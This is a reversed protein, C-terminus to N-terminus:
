LYIRKKYSSYIIEAYILKEYFSKKELNLYFSLEKNLAFKKQSLYNYDLQYALVVEPTSVLSYDSLLKIVLDLDEYVTIDTRFFGVKEFCKKRILMSGTRPFIKKEWLFRLPNKVISEELYACYINEKKGSIIKFNAVFFSIEQYKNTLNEFVELCSELLLDDADLFFIFEGSSNKIGFNRADSVGGNSKSFIKIREDAIGKIINISNDTSGDDIVLLEFDNFNQNLVSDITEKISEEKNYLPIIVSILPKNM